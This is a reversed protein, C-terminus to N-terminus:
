SRRTQVRGMELEEEGLQARHAHLTSSPSSRMVTLRSPGSAGTSMEVSGCGPKAVSRCACVMTRSDSASPVEIMVSFTKSFRKTTTSSSLRRPAPMSVLPWWATIAPGRVSLPVTTSAGSRRPPAASTM